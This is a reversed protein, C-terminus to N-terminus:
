VWGTLANASLAKLWTWHVHNFASLAWKTDVTWVVWGGAHAGYVSHRFGGLALQRLITFSSLISKHM